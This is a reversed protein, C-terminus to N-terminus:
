IEANLKVRWRSRCSQTFSRDSYFQKPNFDNEESKTNGLRVAHCKTGARIVCLRQVFDLLAMIWDEVMVRPSGAMEWACFM